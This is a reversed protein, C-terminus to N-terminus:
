KRKKLREDFWLSVHIYEEFGQYTKLPGIARPNFKREHDTCFIAGAETDTNIFTYDVIGGPQAVFGVVIFHPPWKTGRLGHDRLTTNVEVLREPEDILRDRTPRELAPEALPNHMLADKYSIPFNVSLEEEVRRIQERTM